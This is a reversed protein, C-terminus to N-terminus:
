VGGAIKSKASKAADSVIFVIGSVGARKKKERERQRERDNQRDSNIEYRICKFSFPYNKFKGSISEMKYTKTKM